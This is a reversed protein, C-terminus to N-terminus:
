SVGALEEIAPLLVDTGAIVRMPDDIGNFDALVRWLRADGYEKYALHALSDGDVM